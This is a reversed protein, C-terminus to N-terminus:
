QNEGSCAKPKYKRRSLEWYDLAFNMGVFTLIMVGLIFGQLALMERGDLMGEWLSQDPFFPM